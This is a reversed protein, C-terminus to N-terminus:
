IEIHPLHWIDIVPMYYCADSSLLVYFGLYIEVKAQLETLRYLFLGIPGHFGQKSFPIIIPRGKVGKGVILSFSHKLPGYVDLDHYRQHDFGCFATLNM